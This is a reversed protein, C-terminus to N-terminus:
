NPLRFSFHASSPGVHLKYLLLGWVIFGWNTIACYINFQINLPGTRLRFIPPPLLPAHPHKSSVPIRSERRACIKLYWQNELFWWSTRFKWVMKKIKTRLSKRRWLFQIPLLPGSAPFSPLKERTIQSTAKADSSQQASFVIRLFRTEKLTFTSCDRLPKEKMQGCPLTLAEIKGTIIEM